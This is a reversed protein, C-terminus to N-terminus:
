VRKHKLFQKYGNKVHNQLGVMDDDSDTYFNLGTYMGKLYDEYLNNFNAPKNPKIVLSTLVFRVSIRMIFKRGILLRMLRTM